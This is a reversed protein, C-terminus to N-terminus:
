NVCCDTTYFIVMTVKIVKVECCLIIAAGLAFSEKQDVFLDETVVPWM